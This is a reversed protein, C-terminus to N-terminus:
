EEAQFVFGLSKASPRLNMRHEYYKIARRLTGRWSNKAVSDVVTLEPREFLELPFSHPSMDQLDLLLSMIVVATAQVDVNPFIESEGGSIQRALDFNGIAIHILDHNKFFISQPTINYHQVGQEHIHELGSCLQRILSLRTSLAFKQKGLHEKLTAAQVLEMLLYQRGKWPTLALFRVVNEHRCKVMMCAENELTFAHMPVRKATVLQAGRRGIFLEGFGGRGLPQHEYVVLQGMVLTQDELEEFRRTEM